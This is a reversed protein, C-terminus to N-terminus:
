RVIVVVFFAVEKMRRVRLRFEFVSGVKVRGKEVRMNGWVGVVVRFGLWM